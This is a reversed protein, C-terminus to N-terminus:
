DSDSEDIETEPSKARADGQNHINEKDIWNKISEDFGWWSVLRQNNRRKAHVKNILYYNPYKVPILEETYFSGPLLKNKWDKLKYM